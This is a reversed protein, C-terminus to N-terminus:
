NTTSLGNCTNKEAGSLKALVVSKDSDGISSCFDSLVQDKEKKPLVRIADLQAQLDNKNAGARRCAALVKGSPKGTNGEYISCAASTSEWLTLLLGVGGAVVVGVRVYWQAHANRVNIISLSMTAIAIFLLWRNSRSRQLM